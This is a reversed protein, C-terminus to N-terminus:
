LLDWMFKVSVSGPGEYHSASWYGGSDLFALNSCVGVAIFGDPEGTTMEIHQLSFSGPLEAQYGPSLALPSMKKAKSAVGAICDVCFGAQKVVSEGKV